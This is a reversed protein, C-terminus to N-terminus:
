FLGFRGGADFRKAAGRTMNAAGAAAETAFGARQRGHRERTDLSM